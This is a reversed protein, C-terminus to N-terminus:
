QFYDINDVKIAFFGKERCLRFRARTIPLVAKIQRVDLWREVELGFYAKVIISKPFTQKDPRWDGWAGVNVYCIVRM